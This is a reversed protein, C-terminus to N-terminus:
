EHYYVWDRIRQFSGRSPYDQNPLYFFEDWNLIGTNVDAVLAWRNGPFRKQVEDGTLLRLPPLRAPLETLYKPVLSQIGTPPRGNEADYRHIAGVLPAAREAALHFGLDRGNHALRAAPLLLLFYMLGIMTFTMATSSEPKFALVFFGGGGLVLAAMLGGIMLLEVGAIVWGGNGTVCYAYVLVVPAHLCLAVALSLILRRPSFM